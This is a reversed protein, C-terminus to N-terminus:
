TSLNLITVNNLKNNSCVDQIQDYSLSVIKYIIYQKTLGKCQGGTVRCTLELRNGEDYPGVMTWVQQENDLLIVPPNPPVSIVSLFTNTAKIVAVVPSRCLFFSKEM